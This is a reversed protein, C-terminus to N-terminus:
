LADFMTPRHRVTEANKQM